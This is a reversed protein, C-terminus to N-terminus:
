EWAGDNRERLVGVGGFCIDFSKFFAIKIKSKECSIKSSQKKTKNKMNM